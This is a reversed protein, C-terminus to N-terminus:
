RSAVWRNVEALDDTSVIGVAHKLQIYNKIYDYRATIQEARAEFLDKQSKLVDVITAMGFAYSKQVADYAKEAASVLKAASELQSKGARVNLFATRTLKEIAREKEERTEKAIALRAIAERRKAEVAGGQFLPVNVDVSASKTEYPPSTLSNYTINSNIYYLSLNVTPLHEAWQQEVYTEAADIAHVLAQLVPSNKKALSVWEELTHELNPLVANSSLPKVQTIPTGTLERLSELAVEVKNQAAIEKTLLADYHAEIQYVDTIKALQRQFLQQTRDRDKETAEKEARLVELYDRAQLVDFYRLTVDRILDMQATAYEEQRQETQSAFRLKELFAPLNFLVQQVSAGWRHGPYTKNLDAGRLSENLQNTSVSGFASARPLLAGLAQNEQERAAELAQEAAKLRPEAARALEYVQMLDFGQEARPGAGCAMGLALAVAARWRYRYM